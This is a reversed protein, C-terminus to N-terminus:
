PMAKNGIYGKGHLLQIAAPAKSFIELFADRETEDAITSFIPDFAAPSHRGDDIAMAEGEDVIMHNDDGDNNDKQSQRRKKAAEIIEKKSKGANKPNEFCDIWLHRGDPHRNCKGTDKSSGNNGNRGNSRKYKPKAQQGDAKVAKSAKGAAKQKAENNRRSTAADKEKKTMFATIAGMTTNAMDDTKVTEFQTIWTTPFSDAFVRRLTEDTLKAEPGSVWNVIDNAMEFLTEWAYAPISTPKKSAKLGEIQNYAARQGLESMRNEIYARLIEDLENVNDAQQQTLVNHFRKRAAPKLTMKFLQAKAIDNLDAGEMASPYNFAHEIMDHLNEGNDMYYQFYAKHGANNTYSYERFKSQAHGKTPNWPMDEIKKLADPSINM